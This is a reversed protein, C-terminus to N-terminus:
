LCRCSTRPGHAASCDPIQGPNLERKRAPRCRTRFCPPCGRFSIAPREPCPGPRAPVSPCLPLFLPLANAPMQGACHGVVGGFLEASASLFVGHMRCRPCIRIAKPRGAKRFAGLHAGDRQFFRRSPSLFPSALAAGRPGATPGTARGMLLTPAPGLAPM